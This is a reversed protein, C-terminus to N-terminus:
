IARSGKEGTRIRVANEVPSVFIKGAGSRGSKVAELIAEMLRGVDTNNAFITLLVKPLLDVKFRRNSPVESPGGLRGRGEFIFVMMGPCLARQLAKKVKEFREPPVVTDIRKM